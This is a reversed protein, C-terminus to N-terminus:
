STGSSRSPHARFGSPSRLALVLLSGLWALAVRGFTLLLLFSAGVAVAKVVADYLREVIAFEGFVHFLAAMAYFGGPAYLTFFDRHPIDGGLVRDAGLLALGEDYVGVTSEMWAVQAAVSFVFLVLLWRGPNAAAARVTSLSPLLLAM